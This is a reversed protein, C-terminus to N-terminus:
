LRQLCHYTHERLEDLTSGFILIDDLYAVLEDELGQLARDVYSQFSAPANCLGFPMVLFEFLGFPTQFATKWEDGARIRLLRFAERLDIKTFYKAGRVRDM